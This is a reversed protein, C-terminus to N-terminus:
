RLTGPISHKKPDKIKMKLQAGSFDNFKLQVSAITSYEVIAIHTGDDSIDFRDVMYEMFDLLRIFNRRSINGSTDVLIAFDM